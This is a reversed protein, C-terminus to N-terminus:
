FKNEKQKKSEVKPKKWVIKEKVRLRKRSTESDYVTERLIFKIRGATMERNRAMEISDRGRPKGLERVKGRTLKRKDAVSKILM